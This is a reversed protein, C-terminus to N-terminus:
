RGASPFQRRGHEPELLQALFHTFVLTWGVTWLTLRASRAHRKLCVFIIVLAGVILFTPIEEFVGM